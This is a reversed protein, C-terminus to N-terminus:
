YWDKHGCHICEYENRQERFRPAVTRGTDADRMVAKGCEPCVFCDLKAFMYRYIDHFWEKHGCHECRLERRHLRLWHIGEEIQGTEAMKGYRCNRCRHVPKRGSLIPWASAAFYVSLVVGILALCVVIQLTESM